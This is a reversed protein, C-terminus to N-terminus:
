PKIAKAMLAKTFDNLATELLEICARSEEAEVEAEYQLRLSYATNGVKLSSRAHREKMATLADHIPTSM